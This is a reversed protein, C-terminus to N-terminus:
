PKLRMSKYDVKTTYFLEDPDSDEDGPFYQGGWMELAEKAYVKARRVSVKDPFQMEVILTKM